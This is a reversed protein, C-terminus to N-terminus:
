ALSKNKNDEDKLFLDLADFYPFVIRNNDYRFHTSIDFDYFIRRQYSHSKFNSKEIM